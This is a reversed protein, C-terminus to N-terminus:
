TYVPPCVVAAFAGNARGPITLFSSQMMMMRQAPDKNIWTKPAYPMAEYAFEPDQIQAFARTGLLEPGTMIVTGDVLMPQEVNNEDVYWDNYVYLDYQGWRGKYVAGNQITNAPNIDNGNNALRPYYIAGQVGVSNLFKQWPTTTFIVDTCVVGSKKLIQRQWADLSAPPVPDQGAINFNSFVGWQANGTLATTLTPDRGFDMLVTPFGEGSLTVTGTALVSAAMWEMRRTLMSIQDALEFELNAMERERGSMTGGIREGIMRRIPRRLDPARKDKVYPPKFTNTKMGLSEVFKGEVLPSVFPSMRRKGIEVDLSVFETDAMQINGFYRDLLFSQARKLNPVVQIITNTDFALNGTGGAM